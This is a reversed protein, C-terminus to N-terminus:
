PLRLLDLLLHDFEAAHTEMPTHGAGTIVHLEVRPVAQRLRQAQELPVWTDASGWIARIPMGLRNLGTVPENHTTRVIDVFARASGPQTLARYYANAREAPVPQGAAGALISAIREPTILARELLVQLWRAIPPFRILASAPGPANDFVAGDVLIVAATRAPEALAMATVTGGGMSHGVLRWPEGRLSAPAENDLSSLLAWLLTSRSAQSHDLGTQRTSYGFGPLDVAVTWFGQAQLAAINEIWSVTSGGLGHVLLVKGAATTNAPQGATVQVSSPWIRYHLQVGNVMRFASNAFPPATLPEAVSVPILYPLACLLILILGIALLSRRLVLRLRRHRRFPIRGGTEPALGGTGPALGGIEPAHGGVEPDRDGVDPTLDSQAPQPTAAPTSQGNTNM